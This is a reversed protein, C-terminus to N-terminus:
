EAGVLRDIRQGHTTGPWRGRFRDARSRAEDSRGLRQLAEIAIVEREQALASAPFDETHRRVLELSRAPTAALADQALQLLRLEAAPDPTPLASSADPAQRRNTPLGV